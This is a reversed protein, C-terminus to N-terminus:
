YIKNKLFNPPGFSKNTGRRAEDMFKMLATVLPHPTSNHTYDWKM